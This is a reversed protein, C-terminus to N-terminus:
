RDAQSLIISCKFIPLDVGGLHYKYVESGKLFDFKKKGQKISDEIAMAKSIIGTSLWNYERDFGSNYLLMEGNYDFCITIAVPKKNYSLVNFRLYNQGAMSNLILTLFNEMDDTLFEAKDNRSERFLKYFLERDSETISSSSTYEIEGMENLRRMKRRLEHRQKNNLLGLYEDWSHPLNIYPSVDIKIAKFPIGAKNCYNSLSTMVTSDERVPLLELKKIGESKLTNILIDFFNNESGELIIFDLYDCIDENGMLFATDGKIMIPAIGISGSNDSIDAIYPTYGNGFCQWWIGTWEPSSFILRSSSHKQLNIWKDYLAEINGTKLDYAM